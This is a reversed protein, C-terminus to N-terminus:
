GVKMGAELQLGVSFALHTEWSVVPVGKNQNTGGAGGPGLGWYPKGLGKEKGGSLEGM